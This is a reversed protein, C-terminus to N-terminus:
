YARKYGVEVDRKFGGLGKKHYKVMKQKKKRSAFDSSHGDNEIKAWKM